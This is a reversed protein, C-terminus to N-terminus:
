DVGEVEADPTLTSGSNFNMGWGRSVEGM